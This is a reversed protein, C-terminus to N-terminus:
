TWHGVAVFPHAAIKFWAQYYNWFMDGSAQKVVKSIMEYGSETAVNPVAQYSWLCTIFSDSLSDPFPMCLLSCDCMVKGVDLCHSGGVGRWYGCPLFYCCGDWAMGPLFRSSCIFAPILGHRLQDKHLRHDQSSRPASRSSACKGQLHGPRFIFTSISSLVCHNNGCHGVFTAWM